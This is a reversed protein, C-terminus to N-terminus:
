IDRVQEFAVQRVEVEVLAHGRSDAKSSLRFFWVYITRRGTIECACGMMSGLGSCHSGCFGIWISQGTTKKWDHAPSDGHATGEEM